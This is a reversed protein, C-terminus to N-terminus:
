LSDTDTLDLSRCLHRPLPPAHDPVHRPGEHRLPLLSTESNADNRGCDAAVGVTDLGGVLEMGGVNASMERLGCPRIIEDQDNFLWLFELRRGIVEMACYLFLHAFERISRQMEPSPTPGAPTVHNSIPKRSVAVAGNEPETHRGTPWWLVLAANAVIPRREIGM